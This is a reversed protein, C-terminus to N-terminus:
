WLLLMVRAGTSGREGRTPGKEQQKLRIAQIVLGADLADLLTPSSPTAHGPPLLLTLGGRGIADQPPSFCTDSISPFRLSDVDDSERCSRILDGSGRRFCSTWCRGGRPGFIEVSTSRWKFPCLDAGRGFGYESGYRFKSNNAAMKSHKSKRQTECSCKVAMIMNKTPKIITTTSSSNPM